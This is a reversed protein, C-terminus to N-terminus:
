RYKKSEKELFQLCRETDPLIRVNFCFLATLCLVLSDFMFYVFYMEVTLMRELNNSILVSLLIIITFNNKRFINQEHNSFTV